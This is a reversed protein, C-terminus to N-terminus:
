QFIYLKKIARGDMDKAKRYLIRQEKNTFNDLVKISTNEDEYITSMGGQYKFINLSSLKLNKFNETKM